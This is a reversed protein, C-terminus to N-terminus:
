RLGGTADIVTGTVWGSEEACLMLVAGAIDDPTGLRKMANSGAMAEIARPSTTEHLLPTDTAGPRVVNVTVGRGAVEKAAVRAAAELGAKAAAYTSQRAPAVAAAASSLLVVRGGDVIRRAAERLTLLASRLNLALTADISEQTLETVRPYDWGGVCHVVVRLPGLAEAADFAEVVGEDTTADSKVLAVTRGAARLREALSEARDVHHLYGIALAHTEALRGSVAAGIGGAGGLVLASSATM